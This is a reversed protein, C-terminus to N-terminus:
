DLSIGSIDILMLIKLSINHFTTSYPLNQHRFIKVVLTMLSCNQLLTHACMVMAIKKREKLELLFM